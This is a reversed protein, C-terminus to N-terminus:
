PMVPTSADKGIVTTWPRVTWKKVLGNLVYPDSKAFNEVVEPTEAKFLMVTQDIPDSLAGGLLLEGKSHSEWGRKLHESRFESRRTIYEETVDYILLYHMIIEKNNPYNLFLFAL